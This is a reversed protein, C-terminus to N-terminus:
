AHGQKAKIFDWCFLPWNQLWPQKNMRYLWFKQQFLGGLVRTKARVFATITKCFIKHDQLFQPRAFIDQLGRQPRTFTKSNDQLCKQLITTTKSKYHDQLPRTTTTCNKERATKSWIYNQDQKYFIPNGSRRSIGFIWKKDNQTTYSRLKKKSRSFYKSRGFDSKPRLKEFCLSRIKKLHKSPFPSLM